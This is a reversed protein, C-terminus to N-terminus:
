AHSSENPQVSRLWTGREAEGPRDAFGDISSVRRAQFIPCVGSIGTLMLVLAAARAPLRVAAPADRVAVYLAAGAGVRALREADGVNQADLRQDVEDAQLIGAGVLATTLVANSPEVLAQGRVEVIPTRRVGSALGTATALAELDDDVNLYRHPIALRRLLRRARRTDECWDAGYVTVAASPTIM